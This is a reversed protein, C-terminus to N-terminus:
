ESWRAPTVPACFRDMIKHWEEPDVQEALDMSGKVDAFLVTVQKREGELAARSTLIKEALHKPTYARPEPAKAPTTSDTTLRAGCHRCYNGGRPSSKGCRSCLIEIAAGCAACFHSDSLNDAQCADCKMSIEAPSRDAPEAQDPSPARFPLSCVARNEERSSPTIVLETGSNSVRM